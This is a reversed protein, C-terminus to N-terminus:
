SLRDTAVQGCVGCSLAAGFCRAEQAHGQKSGERERIWPILVFCAEPFTERLSDIMAKRESPVVWRSRFEEPTPAEEVLKAAFREKYEEVTVPM